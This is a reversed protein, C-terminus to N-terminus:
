FGVNKGGEPPTLESSPTEIDVAEVALTLGDIAVIKVQQGVRLPRASRARWQEGQASVMVLGENLVINVPTIQGLMAELGSVLPRKRARVALGVVLFLVLATTLAFTLIVSFYIRFAPLQTDMLIISGMVFAVLGGLGLVGFSPQFAEAVLLVVGLLILGMGAYNVPLLQFAYLALMLCIAGVTGPLIGGPNYFELLLGYVGIMMLIYAINPNTIVGLLRNRWDPLLEIVSLGTTHLIQERELVRVKRGDLQALLDNIDAAVIDIVKLQLAEQATLSVGERVAQEAWDANRDHLAALGRIYAAADNIIKHQMADGQAQRSSKGGKGSAEEEGAEENEMGPLAIGGIQVPTAAGLNTGPAMAAIHSAYLIYTGASAARAGTPSVYTAVPVPSASITKIMGRMASDLGGPTDMRIIILAPASPLTELFARHLYDEAAPGIAGEISLLVVQGPVAWAPNAAFLLCTVLAALGAQLRVVLGM